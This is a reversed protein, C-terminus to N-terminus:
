IFVVVFLETLDFICGFCPLIQSCFNCCGFVVWGFRLVRLLRIMNIVQYLKFCAPCGIDVKCGGCHGLCGLLRFM